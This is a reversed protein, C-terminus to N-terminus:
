FSHDMKKLEEALTIGAQVAKLKAVGTARRHYNESLELPLLNENETEAIRLYQKVEETYVHRKGWAFSSEWTSEVDSSFSYLFGEPTTMAADSMRKSAEKQCVVFGTDTGLLGDWFRHLNGAQRTPIKHAGHDGEPFLRPSFLTTTHCPHHLKAYSHLYWCYMVAKEEESSEAEGAIRRKAYQIAQVANMDATFKAPPKTSTNLHLEGLVERDGENLFEVQFATQWDAHYYHRDEAPLHAALDPWIAAQQFIWEAQIQEDGTKVIDPMRSEFDQKWRPHKRIKNSISLRVAPDLRQFAMSAIVRHAHENWAFLNQPIVLLAVLLVWFVKKM